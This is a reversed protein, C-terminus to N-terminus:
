RGVYLLQFGKETKQLQTFKDQIHFHVLRYVTKAQYTDFSPASPLGGSGRGVELEGGVARDQRSVIKKDVRPSGLFAILAPCLKQWLFATFHRNAHISQPLSSVLTHLCELLFVVSHSSRDTSGVCVVYQIMTVTLGEHPVPIEVMM